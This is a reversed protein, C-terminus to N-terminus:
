VWGSWLALRVRPSRVTLCSEASEGERHTGELVTVLGNLLVDRGGLDEAVLFYPWCLPERPDLIVPTACVCGSDTDPPLTFTTTALGKGSLEYGQMVGICVERAAGEAPLLCFEARVTRGGPTVVHQETSVVLRYPTDGNVGQALCSTAVFVM